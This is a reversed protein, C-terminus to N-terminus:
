SNAMELSKELFELVFNEFTASIPRFCGYLSRYEILVFTASHIKKQLNQSATVKAEIDALKLRDAASKLSNNDAVKSLQDLIASIHRFCGYLLRHKM